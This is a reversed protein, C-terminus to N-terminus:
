SGFKGKKGRIQLEGGEQVLDVAQKSRTWGYNGGGARGLGRKVGKEYGLVHKLMEWAVDPGKKTARCTSSAPAKPTHFLKQLKPPVCM